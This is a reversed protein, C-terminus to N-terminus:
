RTLLIKHVASMTENQVRVFYVGSGFNNANFTITHVGATQKGNFLREVLRGTVDYIKIQVIGAKPLQYEITTSPNFPNPYNRVLIHTKPINQGERDDGIAQPRNILLMREVNKFPANDADVEVSYFYADDDILSDIRVTWTHQASTDAEIDGFNKVSDQTGELVLGEPLVLKATSNVATTDGTNFLNVTIEFLDFSLSDGMDTVSNPADITTTLPPLLDDNSIIFKSAENNSENSEIIQNKNDVSVYVEHYKPNTPVTWDYVVSSEGGAPLSNIVMLPGITQGGEPNGDFFQVQVNQAEVYGYNHVTATLRIADGPNRNDTDPTFSIDEGSVALDPLGLAFNLPVFDAGWGGGYSSIVSLNGSGTIHYVAKASYFYYSDGENLIGSFVISSDALNMIEVSNNDDFSFINMDGAIVPTYFNTGIGHGSEDVQRTLYYYSSSWDAYPQNMATVSKDTILEWYLDGYVPHVATEGENIFGQMLTDGTDSNLLLYETSDQYATVIVGNGWYGIYGSFGYFHTGAFTGNTAPIAYGQDTYSLASVPKNAFVGIFTSNYGSLQFHEGTNLIGAAITNGTSLDKLTFETGDNYAFVIFYEGTFNYSPMYTNLRTSLPKGSEDVAFYGMVGNTVPDGILLTFSTNGEVRFVGAYLQFVHYENENLLVTDIVTGSTDLVTFYSDNFYSFVVLDRFTYTTTSYVFDGTKNVQSAARIIQNQGPEQITVQDAGPAGGAVQASLQVSLGLFTILLLMTFMRM